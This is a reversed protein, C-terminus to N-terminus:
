FFLVMCSFVQVTNKDFFVFFYLFTKFDWFLFTLLFIRAPLLELPSFGNFHWSTSWGVGHLPNANGRLFRAGKVSSM